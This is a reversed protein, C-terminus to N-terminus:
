HSRTNKVRARIKDALLVILLLFALLYGELGRTTSDSVVNTLTTAFFMEISPEDESAAAQLLSAFCSSFSDFPRAAFRTFNSAPATGCSPFIAQFNLGSFANEAVKLGVCRSSGGKSRRPGSQDGTQGGSPGLKVALAFM